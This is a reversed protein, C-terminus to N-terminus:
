QRVEAVDFTQGKPGPLKVIQRATRRALPAPSGLRHDAIRERGAARVSAALDAGRGDLTVRATLTRVQGQAVPGLHTALRETTRGGPGLLLRLDLSEVDRRPTAQMTVEYTGGGLDRSSV